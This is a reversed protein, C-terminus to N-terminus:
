SRHQWRPNWTLRCYSERWDYNDPCGPPNHWSEDCVYDSWCKTYENNEDTHRFTSYCHWGLICSNDHGIPDEGDGAAGGGVAKLEADDLEMASALAQEVEEPSIELGAAAAARSFAEVESLGEEKKMGRLADQFAKTKEPSAELAAEIEEMTM